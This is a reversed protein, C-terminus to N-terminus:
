AVRSTRAVDAPMRTERVVTLLRDPRLAAVLAVLAGALLWMTRRPAVKKPSAYPQDVVNLVPTDRVEELRSTEAQRAVSQVLEQWLGLRDQLARERFRLAPAGEFQRNGEYFRTLSDVVARQRAQLQALREEAFRRENRAQSERRETIARSVARLQVRLIGEALAPSTGQASASILGTRADVGVALRKALKRLQRERAERDTPGAEDGVVVRALLRCDARDVCITDGLMRLYVDRSRAVSAFYDPSEPNSLAGAIGFQAAFGALRNASLSSRESAITFRTDAHYRTPALYSLGYAAAGGLAAAVLAIPLRARVARALAAVSLAPRGSLDPM